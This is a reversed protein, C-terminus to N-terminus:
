AQDKNNKKKDDEEDALGKTANKFERLTNGAAKGLEPLKKPGFILLAVLGIIVISGAGLGGM